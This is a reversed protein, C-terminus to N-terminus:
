RKSRFGPPPDPGYVPGSALANLEARSPPKVGLLMLRRTWRSSMWGPGYMVDLAPRYFLVDAWVTPNSHELEDILRLSETKAHARDSFRRYRRLLEMGVDERRLGTTSSELGELISISEADDFLAGAILRRLHFALPHDPDAALCRRATEVDTRNAYSYAGGTSRSLNALIRAERADPARLHVEVPPSLHLRGASWVRWYRPAVEFGARVRYTGADRFARQVRSNFPPDLLRMTTSVEWTAVVSDGAAFPVERVDFDAQTNYSTRLERTGDPREVEIRGCFGAEGQVWSLPSPLWLVQTTRNAVSVRFLMPEGVIYDTKDTRLRIELDDDNEHLRATLHAVDPNAQLGPQDGLLADIDDQASRYWGADVITGLWLEALSVHYGVDDPMFEPERSRLALLRGTADLVETRKEPLWFLYRDLVTRAAILSLYPSLSNQPIVHEARILTRVDQAEEDLWNRRSLRHPLSQLVRVVRAESATPRRMRLRIENSCLTQEDLCAACCFQHVSGTALRCVVRIRYDGARPFTDTNRFIGVRLGNGDVRSETRDCRTFLLLSDGPALIANPESGSEARYLVDGRPPQISFFIPYGRGAQFFVSDVSPNVIVYTLRVPEGLVYTGKDARAHVVLVHPPDITANASIAPPPGVLLVGLIGLTLIRQVNAIFVFRTAFALGVIM